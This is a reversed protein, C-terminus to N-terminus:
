LEGVIPIKWKLGFKDYSCRKLNTSNSDQPQQNQTKGKQEEEENWDLEFDGFKNIFQRRQYITSFKFYTKKFRSNYFFQAYKMLKIDDYMSLEEKLDELTESHSNFDQLFQKDYKDIIAYPDGGGYYNAVSQVSNDDSVGGNQVFNLAKYLNKLLVNIFYRFDTENVTYYMLDYENFLLSPQSIDIFYIRFGSKLYLGIEEMSLQIKQLKNHYQAPEDEEEAERSTPVDTIPRPPEPITFEGIKLFCFQNKPLIDNINTPPYFTQVISKNNIRDRYKVEFKTTGLGSGQKIALGINLNYTGPSLWVSKSYSLLYTRNIEVYHDFIYNSPEDIKYDSYEAFLRKNKLVAYIYRWSDKIYMCNLPNQNEPSDFTSSDELELRSAIAMRAKYRFVDLSKIYPKLWPLIKIIIQIIDKGFVSLIKNYYLDNYLLYFHSNTYKLSSVPDMYLLKMQIELPLDSLM